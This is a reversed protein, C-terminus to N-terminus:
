FGCPVFRHESTVVQDIMLPKGDKGLLDSRKTYKKNNVEDVLGKPIEYEHDPIFKYSLIPDGDWKMYPRELREQPGKTNIYQVKVMRSEEDRMKKMAVRDKEKFRKGESDPVSNAVVKFLGHEEGSATKMPSPERIQSLTSM